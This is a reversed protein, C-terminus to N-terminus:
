DRGKVADPQSSRAVVMLKSSIKIGAKEAKKTDVEFQVRGGEMVFNIICKSREEPGRECVTLVPRGELNELISTARGTESSSFFVINCSRWEDLTKPHHIWISRNQATKGTITKGLVPGLLDGRAVGIIISSNNTSFVQVPWDVFKAFYYLYAAKVEYEGPIRDMSSTAAFTFVAFAIWLALGFLRLRRRRTFIRNLSSATGIM